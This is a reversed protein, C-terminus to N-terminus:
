TRQIRASSETVNLSVPALPIDRLPLLSLRTPTPLLVISICTDTVMFLGEDVKVLLPVVGYRVEPIVGPLVRTDEGGPVSAPIIIGKM